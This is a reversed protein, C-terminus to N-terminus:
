EEMKVWNTMLFVNSFYCNSRVCYLARHLAAFLPKRVTVSSIEINKMETVNLPTLLGNSFQPVQTQHLQCAYNTWMLEGDSKVM